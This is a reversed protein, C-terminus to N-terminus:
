RASGAASDSDSVAYLHSYRFRSRFMEGGNPYGAVTALTSDTRAAARAMGDTTLAAMKSIAAVPQPPLAGATCCCFSAASTGIPRGVTMASVGWSGAANM